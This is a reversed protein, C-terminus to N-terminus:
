PRRMAVVSLDRPSPANENGAANATMRCQGDFVAGDEVVLVPSEVDGNVRAGTRLEVRATAAVNGVVHGSILVTAAQIDAHVVGKEGVILKDTSSIEGRFKGNLMVTGTFTYKGEIESGEDIFATLEGAKVTTKGIWKRWM